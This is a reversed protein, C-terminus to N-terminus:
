LSEHLWSKFRKSDSRVPKVRALVDLVDDTTVLVTNANDVIKRTTEKKDLLPIVTRTAIMLAEKCVLKIEAGSYGESNKALQRCDVNTELYKNVQKPLFGEFLATRAEDNPVDVFIKKELRRLIAPDLDWPM